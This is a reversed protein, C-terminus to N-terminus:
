SQDDYILCGVAELVKWIQVSEPKGLVDTEMALTKRDSGHAVVARLKRESLIGKPDALMAFIISWARIPLGGAIKPEANDMNVAGKLPPVSVGSSVHSSGQRSQASGSDQPKRAFPHKFVHPTVARSAEGTIYLGPSTGARDFLLKSAYTPPTIQTTRAGDLERTPSVNSNSQSPHLPPFNIPYRYEMLIPRVYTLLKLATKWLGVSHVGENEIITRQIKKRLSELEQTSTQLHHQNVRPTSENSPVNSSVRRQHSSAGSIRRRPFYPHTFECEFDFVTNNCASDQDLDSLKCHNIM